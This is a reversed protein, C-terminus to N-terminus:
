GVERVAFLPIIYYFPRKKPVYTEWCGGGYSRGVKFCIGSQDRWILLRLQFIRKLKKM